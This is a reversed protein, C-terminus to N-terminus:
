SIKENEENKREGKKNKMLDNLMNMIDDYTLNEINEQNINIGKIDQRILELNDMLTKIDYFKENKM